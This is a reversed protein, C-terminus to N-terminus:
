LNLSEEGRQLDGGTRHFFHKDRQTPDRGVRSFCAICVPRLAHSFDDILVQDIRTRTPMAPRPRSGAARGTRPIACRLRRFGVYRRHHLANRDRVQKVETRGIDQAQRHKEGEAGATKISRRLM